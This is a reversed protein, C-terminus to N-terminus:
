NVTGSLGMLSGPYTECMYLDGSPSKIDYKSSERLGLRNASNVDADAAIARMGSETAFEKAKELLAAAVGNEAGKENVSMETIRLFEQELGMNDLIKGKCCAIKGLFDDGANAVFVKDVDKETDLAETIEIQIEEKKEEEEGNSKNLAKAEEETLGEKKQEELANNIEDQLNEPLGAVAQNYDNVRKETLYYDGIGFLISFVVFELIFFFLSPIQASSEPDIELNIGSISYIATIATLFAGFLLAEIVTIKIRSKRAAETQRVDIPKSFINVPKKPKGNEDLKVKGIEGLKLFDKM